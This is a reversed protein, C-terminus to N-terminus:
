CCFFFLKLITMFNPFQWVTIFFKTIQLSCIEINGNGFNVVKKILFATATPLQKQHGIKVLVSLFCIEREPLTLPTLSTVTLPEPM